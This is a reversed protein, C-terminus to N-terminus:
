HEKSNNFNKKIHKINTLINNSNFILTLIEQNVIINGKQQRFIYFWTKTGFFDKLMPTGLIYIVQKQTMGNYIQSTDTITFYNGQNINPHYIIKKFTSCSSTLTLIILIILIKYRIM